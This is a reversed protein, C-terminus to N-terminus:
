LITGVHWFFLSEIHNKDNERVRTEHRGYVYIYCVVWRAVRISSRELFGFLFDLLRFVHWVRSRWWPFWCESKNALVCTVCYARKNHTFLTAIWYCNLELKCFIDTCSNCDQERIKKTRKQSPRIIEWFVSLRRGKTYIYKESREREKKGEREGKRM